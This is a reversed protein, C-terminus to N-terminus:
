AFSMESFPVVPRTRRKRRVPHPHSVALVPNPRGIMAFYKWTVGSRKNPRRADDNPPHRRSTQPLLMAHLANSSRGSLTPTACSPSRVGGCMPVLRRGDGTSASPDARRPDQRRQGTRRRAAIGVPAFARPPTALLRPAADAHPALRSRTRTQTAHTLIGDVLGGTSDNKPRPSPTHSGCAPAVCTRPSPDNM